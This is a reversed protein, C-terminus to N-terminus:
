YYPRYYRGKKRSETIAKELIEQLMKTFYGANKKQLLKFSVTQRGYFLTNFFEIGKMDYRHYIEYFRRSAISVGELTTFFFKKKRMKGTKVAQLIAEERNLVMKCAACYDVKIKDSIDLYLNKEDSDGYINCYNIM